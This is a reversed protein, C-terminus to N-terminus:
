FKVEIIFGSAGASKQYNGWNLSDLIKDGKHLVLSDMKSLRRFNDPSDLVKPIEEFLLSFILDSESKNEKIIQNLNFRYLSTNDVKALIRKTSINNKLDKEIYYKVTGYETKEKTILEKNVNCSVFLFSLYFAVLVLQNRKM